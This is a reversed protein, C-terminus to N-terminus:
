HYCKEVSREGTKPCQHSLATIPQIEQASRPPFGRTYCHTHTNTHTGVSPSSHWWQAGAMAGALREGAVEGGGMRAQVRVYLQLLNPSVFIFAKWQKEREEKELTVLVSLAPAKATSM